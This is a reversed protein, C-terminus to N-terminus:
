PPELVGQGSRVRQPLNYRRCLSWFGTIESRERWSKASDRCVIPTKLDGKWLLLLCPELPLQQRGQLIAQRKEEQAGWGGTLWTRKQGQGWVRDTQLTEVWCRTQHAALTRYSVNGGAQTTLQM